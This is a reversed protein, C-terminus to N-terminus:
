KNAKRITRIQGSEGIELLTIGGLLHGDIRNYYEALTEKKGPYVAKKVALIKQVGPELYSMYFVAENLGMLKASPVNGTDTWTYCKCEVVTKKDPSVCDFKHLKPPNGIPLAVEMEFHSGTEKEILGCVMKQFEKGVRPNQDNTNMRKLSYGASHVGM